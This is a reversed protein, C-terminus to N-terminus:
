AAPFGRHVSVHHLNIILRYWILHSACTFTINVIHRGAPPGVPKAGRGRWSQHQQQQQHPAQQRGPASQRPAPPQPAPAQPRPARAKGKNSPQGKGASQSRTATAPTPKAKDKAPRLVLDLMGSELRQKKEADVVTQQLDGFLHPTLVSAGKLEKLLAPRPQPQLASVSFTPDNYNQKVLM